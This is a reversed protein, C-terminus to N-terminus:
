WGDDDDIGLWERVIRDRRSDADMGRRRLDAEQRRLATQIQGARNISAETAERLKRAQHDEGDHEFLERPDPDISARADRERETM